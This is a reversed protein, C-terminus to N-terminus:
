PKINLTKHRLDQNHPRLNPNKIKPNSTYSQNEFKFTISFCFVSSSPKPPQSKFFLQFKRRRIYIVIVSHESFLFELVQCLWNNHVWTNLLKNALFQDMCTAPRGFKDNSNWRCFNCQIKQMKDNCQYIIYFVRCLECKELYCWFSWIQRNWALMVQPSM